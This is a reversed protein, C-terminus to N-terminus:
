HRISYGTCFPASRGCSHGGESGAGFVGLAPRLWRGFKRGSMPTKKMCGGRCLATLSALVWPDPSYRPLRECALAVSRIGLSCEPLKELVRRQVCCASSLEDLPCAACSRAASDMRRSPMTLRMPDPPVRSPPGRNLPHLPKWSGANSAVSRLFSTGLDLPLHGQRTMMRRSPTAPNSTITLLM